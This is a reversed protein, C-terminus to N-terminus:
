WSFLVLEGDTFEADGRVSWNETRYTVTRATGDLGTGEFTAVITGDEATFGDPGLSIVPMREIRYAAAAVSRFDTAWPIRIGCGVPAVDDSEACTALHEDLREQAEATAAPRLTVAIAVEASESPLATVDVSGDLLVTPTALVEYVGPLLAITDSASFKRDGIMVADGISPTVALESLTSPDITWTGNAETMALEAEHASGDLTFTVRATATSGTRDASIVTSADITSDANELADLTADPADSMLDQVVAPDANELARLYREAAQEPSTPRAGAQWMWVGVASALVLAALVFVTWRARRTM